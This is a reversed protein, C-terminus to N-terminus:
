GHNQITQTLMKREICKGLSQRLRMMMVKVASLGRNQLEAIESLNYGRAYHASLAERHEPRLKSLCQELAEIRHSHAESLRESTHAMANVVDDDFVLRERSRDRVYALIEFRAIAFAWKLFSTEPDWDDVKKWLVLCVKQFVDRGDESNGISAACFGRLASQSETFATIFRDNPLPAESKNGPKM